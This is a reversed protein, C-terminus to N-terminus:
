RDLEATTTEGLETLWVKLKHSAIFITSCRVLRNGTASRKLRNTLYWEKLAICDM